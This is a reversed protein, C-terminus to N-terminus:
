AAKDQGILVLEVVSDRFSIYWEEYALDSNLEARITEEDPPSPAEAEQEEDDKEEQETEEPETEPEPEPPYLLTLYERQVAQGSEMLLRDMTDIVKSGGDFVALPLQIHSYLQAKAQKLIQQELASLGQQRFAKKLISDANARKMAPLRGTAVALNATREETLWQLFVQAAAQKEKSSKTLVLGLTEQMTVPNGGSFGPAPRISLQVVGSAGNQSAIRNSISRAQTTSTLCAIAKGSAFAEKCSDMAFAGDMWGSSWFSWFSRVKGREFSFQVSDPGSVFMHKGLSEYGAVLLRGWSDTCFFTPFEESGPLIPLAAEEAEDETEEKEEGGQSSAPVSEGEPELVWTGYAKAAAGIGEWTVLNRDSFVAEGEESVTERCFESWRSENVLLIDTDIGIPFLVMAGNEGPCAEAQVSDLFMGRQEETLFEEMHVAWGMRDLLYATDDLSFFLDPLRPLDDTKEAEEQAAQFVAEAVAPLSEYGTLTLQVRNERGSSANFEEALAELAEQERGTFGHWLRLEIPAQNQVAAASLRAYADQIRSCGATMVAAAACVASLIWRKLRKSLNATTKRQATGRRHTNKHM